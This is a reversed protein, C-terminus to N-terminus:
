MHSGDGNGMADHKDTMKGDSAMKGAHSKKKSEKKMSKGQMGDGPKMSDHQMGGPAAMQDSQQADGGSPKMADDEARAISLLSLCCAAALLVKRM